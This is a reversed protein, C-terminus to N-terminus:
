IREDGDGPHVHREHRLMVVNAPGTRLEIPLGEVRFLVGLCIGFPQLARVFLVDDLCLIVAITRAAVLNSRFFSSRTVRVPQDEDKRQNPNETESKESPTSKPEEKPEEVNRKHALEYFPTLWPANLPSEPQAALIM